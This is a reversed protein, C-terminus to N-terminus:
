TVGSAKMPSAPQAPGAEHGAGMYACMTAVHVIPIQPVPRRRTRLNM